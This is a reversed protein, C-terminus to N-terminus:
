EKELKNVANWTHEVVICGLYECEEIVKMRKGDVDFKEGTRKSGNKRVNFRDASGKVSWVM